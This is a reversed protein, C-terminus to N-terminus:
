IRSSKSLHHTTLSADVYISHTDLNHINELATSYTEVQADHEIVIQHSLHNLVTYIKTNDNNQLAIRGNVYTQFDSPTTERHTTM